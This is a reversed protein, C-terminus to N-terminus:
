RVRDAPDGVGRDHRRLRGVWIWQVQATLQGFMEKRTEDASQDAEAFDRVFQKGTLVGVLAVRAPGVNSLPQIWREM